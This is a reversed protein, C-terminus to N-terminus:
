EVIFRVLMVLFFVITSFYAVAAFFINVGKARSFDEERQTAKRVGIHGAVLISLTERISLPREEPAEPSSKTDPPQQNTMSQRM